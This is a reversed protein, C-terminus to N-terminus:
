AGARADNEGKAARIAARARDYWAPRGDGFRDPAVSDCAAELAELLAPAAAILRPDVDHLRVTTITHEIGDPNQWTTAGLVEVPTHASM